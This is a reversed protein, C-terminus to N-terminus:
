AGSWEAIAKVCELTLCRVSDIAHPPLRLGRSSVGPGKPGARRALYIQVTGLPATPM